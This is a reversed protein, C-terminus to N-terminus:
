QSLLSSMPGHFYQVKKYYKNQCGYDVFNEISTGDYVNFIKWLNKYHLHAQEALLTMKM